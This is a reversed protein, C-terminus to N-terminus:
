ILFTGACGVVVNNKQPTRCEVSLMVVNVVKAYQYLISCTTEAQLCLSFDYYITDM